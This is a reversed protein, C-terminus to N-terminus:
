SVPTGAAIASQELFFASTTFAFEFDCLFQDSLLNNEVTFGYGSIGQVVLVLRRSNDDLFAAVVKKLYFAILACQELRDFVHEGLGFGSIPWRLFFVPPDFLASDSDNRSVSLVAAERVCPAGDGDPEFAIAIAVFGNRNAIVDAAMLRLITGDSLPVLENSPMPATDFVSIM